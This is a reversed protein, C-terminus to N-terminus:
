RRYYAVLRTVADIVDQVDTDGMDPFLPLAVSSASFAEAQPYDGERYGFTTRYYPHLHVPIFYVSTGINEARLADIFQNRSIRLAGPRLRLPYIYRAHRVAPHEAPLLFAELDRFAANYAQVIAERRAIFRELKALQALGLAAALEGMNDKYGPALVEYYWSGAASHRKWADKSIGHLSLLRVREALDDRGTVLMGGEGTTLTKTAYFSFVAVRHAAAGVPVGNVRSGIAHAADEVLLIDRGAALADFAEMDCPYGAYHVPIIAKTRPTLAREVAAPDLNGTHPDIDAFVVTAGVHLVVNATATFTLPTTIVEDGPGIGAAVLALHLGATCSNLAVAHKAGVYAKMQREFEFVQPGTSLWGSELAAIVAAKEEPGIHPVAIPLFTDRVPSGGEIAPRAVLSHAM